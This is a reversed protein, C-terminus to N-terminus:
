FIKNCDASGNVFRSNIWIEVSGSIKGGQEFMSFRGGQSTTGSFKKGTGGAAFEVNGVGYGYFSQSPSVAAVAYISQGAPNGSVSIYSVSSLGPASVQCNYIGDIPGGAALIQATSFLALLSVAIRIFFRFFM